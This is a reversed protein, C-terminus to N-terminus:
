CIFSHVHYAVDHVLIFHYCVWTTVRARVGVMDSKIRNLRLISAILRLKAPIATYLGLMLDYLALFYLGVFIADIDEVTANELIEGISGTLADVQVGHAAYLGQLCKEHHHKATQLSGTVSSFHLSASTWALLSSMVWPHSPTFRHFFYTYFTWDAAKSSFRSTLQRTFHQTLVYSPPGGTSSRGLQIPDPTSAEPQPEKLLTETDLEMADLNPHPEPNLTQDHWITEPAQAPM